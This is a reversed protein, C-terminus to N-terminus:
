RNEHIRDTTPGNSGVAEDPDHRNRDGGLRDPWRRLAEDVVRRAVGAPDLSTSDVIMSYISRDAIDIGYFSRYRHAESAERRRNIALAADADDGDRAAVRRAREHEDCHVWVYLGPLDARHALWGALRSELIVDGERARATLRDDLQRDIRDDGEARASFEALGIGAEAALSRFITGGDVHALGLTEVILKAATSTGSGPLGSLTILM